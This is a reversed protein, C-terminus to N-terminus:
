AADAPPLGEKGNRILHVFVAVLDPDFHSGSRMELYRAVEQPPRAPHYPRETTLADYVDAIALLRGELPIDREKLGSPYGSGDWREHHYLVYPSVPELHAIEKLIRAGAITHQKMLAWEEPTLPGRKNLIHDPIIIKGIDHLRAGFELLRLNEAPWSLAVALWRAYKAVREVHRHTYQDRSEISNALVTVTQLFAQDMYAVQVEAARLLRANVIKMLSGADIPKTLYDEVGLDRGMQVAEQSDYSTLFIFPIAVWRSNARLAKKFEIGDMNPMEIDSLILNPTIREMQRLADKGDRAQLVHHGEIELSICIMERVTQNDEVVLIWKKSIPITPRDMNASHLQM